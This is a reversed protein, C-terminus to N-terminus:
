ASGALRLDLRVAAQQLLADVLYAALKGGNHSRARQMSRSATSHRIRDDGYDAIRIGALRGEEVPNGSRAHQRRMM